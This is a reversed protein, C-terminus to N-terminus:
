IDFVEIQGMLSRWISCSRVLTSRSAISIFPYDVNELAGADSSVWGDSQKTVYRPCENRSDYGEVSTCNAYEAANPLLAM